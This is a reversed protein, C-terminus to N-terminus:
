NNNEEKQEPQQENEVEEETSVVDGPKEKPELVSDGCTTFILVSALLLVVTGHRM